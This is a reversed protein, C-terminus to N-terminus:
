ASRLEAEEADDHLRAHLRRAEAPVSGHPAVERPLSAKGPAEPDVTTDDANAWDQSRSM